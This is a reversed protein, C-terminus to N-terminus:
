IKSNKYSNQYIGKRKLRFNTFALKPLPEAEAVPSTGQLVVQKGSIEIKRKDGVEVYRM